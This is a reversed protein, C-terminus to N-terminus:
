RMGSNARVAKPTRRSAMLSHPVTAAPSAMDPWNRISMIIRRESESEQSFSEFSLLKVSKRHVESETRYFRSTVAICAFSIM